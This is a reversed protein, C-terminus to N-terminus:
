ENKQVLLEYIKPDEQLVMRVAVYNPKIYRLEGKWTKRSGSSTDTRVVDRAIFSKTEKVHKEWQDLVAVARSKPDPKIPQGPNMPHIIAIAFFLSGSTFPLM